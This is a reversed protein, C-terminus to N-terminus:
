MGVRRFLEPYDLIGEQQQLLHLHELGPGTWPSWMIQREMSLEGYLLKMVLSAIDLGYPGEVFSASHTEISRARPTPRPRRVLNALLIKQGGNATTMRLPAGAACSTEIQTIAQM